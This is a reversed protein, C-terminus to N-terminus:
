KKPTKRPRGPGRNIILKGTLRQVEFAFGPGGILQSRRVTTDIFARQRDDCGLAMLERYDARRQAETGALALYDPDSDLQDGGTKGMRVKYSSWPYLRASTVHGHLVALLEIYRLCDLRAQGPEVVSCCYRGQWMTGRHEHRTNFARTHRGAVNKIFGGLRDPVEEPCLLLHVENELLCWAQVQIRYRRKLAHLAALYHQYDRNDRFIPEDNHGLQLIYHSYGTIALRGKGSM